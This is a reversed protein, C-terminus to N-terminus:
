GYAEETTGDSAGQNGTEILAVPEFFAPCELEAIQSELYLKLQELLPVEPNSFPVSNTGRNELHCPGVSGQLTPSGTEEM